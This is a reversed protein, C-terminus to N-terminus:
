QELGIFLRIGLVVTSSKFYQQLIFYYSLGILVELFLCGPSNLIGKAWSRKQQKM